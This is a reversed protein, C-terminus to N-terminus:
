PPCPASDGDLRHLHQYLEHPIDHHLHPSEHPKKEHKVPEPRVTELGAEQPDKCPGPKRDAVEWLGFKTDVIVRQGSIDAIEYPGSEPKVADVTDPGHESINPIEIATEAPTPIEYVSKDGPKVYVSEHASKDGPDVPEAENAPTEKDNDKELDGHVPPANDGSQSSQIVQGPLYREGLLNDPTSIERVKAPEETVVLSEPLYREGLLNDPTSIERVKAQEETVVISEAAEVRPVVNGITEASVTGSGRTVTDEEAIEVLPLKSQEKEGVTAKALVRLQSEQQKKQASKHQEDLEPEEEQFQESGETDGQKRKTEIIVEKRPHTDPPQRSSAIAIRTVVELLDHYTLEFFREGMRERIIGGIDGLNEALFDFLEDAYDARTKDLIVEKYHDFWLFFKEWSEVSLGWEMVPLPPAQHELEFHAEILWQHGMPGPVYDGTKFPCGEYGCRHITINVPMNEIDRNGSPTVTVIREYRLIKDANASIALAGGAQRVVLGLGLSHALGRGGAAPGEARAQEQRPHRRRKGRRQRGHAKRAQRADRQGAEPLGGGGAEVRCQHRGLERVEQM